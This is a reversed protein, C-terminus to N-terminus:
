CGDWKITMWLAWRNYITKIDKVIEGEGIRKKDTIDEERIWEFCWMSRITGGKSGGVGGKGWCAGQVVTRAGGGGQVALGREEAGARVQSPKLLLAGLLLHNSRGGPLYLPAVLGM